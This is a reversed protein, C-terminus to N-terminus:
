WSRFEGIVLRVTTVWLWALAKLLWWLLSGLAMFTGSAVSGSAAWRRSESIGLAVVILLALSIVVVM